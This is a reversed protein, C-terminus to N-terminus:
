GKQVYLEPGQKRSFISLCYETGRGLFKSLPSPNTLIEYSHNCIAVYPRAAHGGKKQPPRWLTGDFDRTDCVEFAM